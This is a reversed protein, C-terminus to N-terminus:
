RSRAAVGFGAVKEGRDVAPKGFPETRGVQLFRFRQEAFEPCRSPSLRKLGGASEVVKTAARLGPSGGSRQMQASAQRWTRPAAAASNTAEALPLQLVNGIRHM